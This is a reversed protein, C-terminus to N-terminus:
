ECMIILANCQGRLTHTHTHRRSHWLLWFVCDTSKEYCARAQTGGFHNSPHTHTHMFLGGRSVLGKTHYGRTHRSQGHSNFQVFCVSIQRWFWVLSSRQHCGCATWLRWVERGSSFFATISSLFLSHFSFSSLLGRAVELTRDATRSLSLFTIHPKTEM